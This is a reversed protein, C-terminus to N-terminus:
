LRSRKAPVGRDAPARNAMELLTIVTRWNRATAPVGLLQEARAALKSTGFGDPTHLYFLSGKLAFRESKTKVAECGKLDPKKPPEALFFVHVSRPNDSAESFPNGAVAKELDARTRVLVRPEFGRSKSVAATLRKALGDLDTMASQFIV